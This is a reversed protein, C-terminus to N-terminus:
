PCAAYGLHGPLTFNCGFDPHAVASPALIDDGAPKV